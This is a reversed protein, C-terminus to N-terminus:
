NANLLVRMLKITLQDEQWKIFKCGIIIMNEFSLVVFFSCKSSIM